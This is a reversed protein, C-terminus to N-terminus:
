RSIFRILWLQSKNQIFFKNGRYITCAWWVKQKKLDIGYKNVMFGFLFICDFCVLVFVRVTHTWKSVRTWRMRCACSVRICHSRRMLQYDFYATILLGKRTKLTVGAPVFDVLCFCIFRYELTTAFLSRGFVCTHTHTNLSGFLKSTFINRVVYNSLRDNSVFVYIIFVNIQICINYIPYIYQVTIVRTWVCWM